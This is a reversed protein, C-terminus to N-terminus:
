EFCGSLSHHDDFPQSHSGRIVVKDMGRGPFRIEKIFIIINRIPSSNQEKSLPKIFIVMEITM